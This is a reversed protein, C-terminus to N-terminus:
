LVEKKKKASRRMSILLFVQSLFLIFIRYSSKNNSYSMDSFEFDVIAITLLIIAGIITIIEKTKMNAHKILAKM